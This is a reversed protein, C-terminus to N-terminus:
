DLLYCLFRIVPQSTKEQLYQLLTTLTSTVEIIPYDVAVLLSKLNFPRVELTIPM